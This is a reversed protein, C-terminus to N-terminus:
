HACGGNGGPLHLDEEPAPRIRRLPTAEPPSALLIPELTTFVMPDSSNAM